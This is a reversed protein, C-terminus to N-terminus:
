NLDDDSDCNHCIYYSRSNQPTCLFHSWLKCQVCQIWQEGPRSESYLEGCVLCITDEEDSSSSTGTTKKSIATSAKKPNRKKLEKKGGAPVIADYHATVDDSLLLTIRNDTEVSVRGPKQEVEVVRQDRCMLVVISTKFANCIGNLMIDGVDSDYKKEVTYRLTETVLDSKYGLFQQYYTRNQLIESQLMECVQEATFTGLGSYRLAVSTAYILCHGDGYVEIKKQKHKKLFRNIAEEQLKARKVTEKEILKMRYPSSTLIESKTKKCVRKRKLPTKSLEVSSLSCDVLNELKEPLPNGIHRMENVVPPQNEKDNIDAESTAEHEATYNGNHTYDITDASDDPKAVIGSNALEEDFVSPDFPWIGTVKFGNVASGTTAAANYAQAFLGAVEFHTVRQNQHSVMWSSVATAYKAKLSGFFTRDLPQTRHSTHPPLSLLEIGNERCYNIANLSKHSDHGDLIILHGNETNCGTTAVFHELYKLFLPGDIYGTGRENVVGVAGTPAGTMFTPNMRKRPYIFMPPVYGGAASLCCVATVNRGRESSTVKRVQKVGKSCVVNRPAVVTSFGTEDCNWIHSAEYKTLVSKLNEFFGVIAHETFGEKRALSTGIPKRISLDRHRAMFSRFWEVGARKTESDWSEASKADHALLMEYALRRVDQSTIPFMRQEMWKIIYVLDREMEPSLKTVTNGLAGLERVKGDRHRRLTRPPIGFERAVTKLNRGQKIAALASRVAEPGYSGRESRRKYTRTM